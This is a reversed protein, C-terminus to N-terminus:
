RRSCVTLTPTASLLNALSGPVDFVTLDCGEVEKYLPTISSSIL